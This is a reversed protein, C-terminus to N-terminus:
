LPRPAHPRTAGAYDDGRWRYPATKIKQGFDPAHIMQGNGVYLGVHHIRSPTGYFVLDGPILSQGEPVRPGARFQTAATRPLTIGASAYAATTLGSCDFGADGADPGNGGWQYPLGLQGTAYNIAQQAASAPSTDAGRGITSSYTQAQALVQAVYWDAHNYSYIAANLDGRNIGNDCLLHAAAFVADHPNYRSPPTAGGPPLTHRATVSTFTAQLFQMPGGAGKNNEEGERVGPLQSRGHDTEIKGIAALISWSLGPCTPAAALYLDLYDSPIDVIAQQNPQDDGGFLATVLGNGIAGIIAPISIVAAAGILALKLRSGM